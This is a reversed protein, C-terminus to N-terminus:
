YCLRLETFIQGNTYPFFDDSERYSNSSCNGSKQTILNERQSSSTEFDISFIYAKIHAEESPSYSAELIDKMTNNLEDCAKAGSSCYTRSYCAGMLEKLNAPISGSLSCDTTVERISELFQRVDTSQKDQTTPKNMSFGLIIVFIVSVLVVVVAFGVVEEQAKKDRM